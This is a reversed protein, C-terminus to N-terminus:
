VSFATRKREVASEMGASVAERVSAEADAPVSAKKEAGAPEEAPRAVEAEPRVPEAPRPKGVRDLDIRGVVKPGKVAKAGAVNASDAAKEEPLAISAKKEKNQRRRSVVDADNRLGKDKKFEDVLMRYQDDTIKANLDAEVNFGKKQLFEVATQIGVNCEKIVKNLRISM